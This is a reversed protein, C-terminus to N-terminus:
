PEVALASSYSDETIQNLADLLAKAEQVDKTDFGETFWSYVDTLMIRAEDPKTRTDHQTICVHDPNHSKPLTAQRQRLRVLSMVTRLELSKAQQHRTIDIAKM